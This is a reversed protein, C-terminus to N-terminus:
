DDNFSDDSDLDIKGIHTDPCKPKINALVPEGDAKFGNKGRTPTKGAYKWHSVKNKKVGEDKGRSSSKDWLALGETPISRPRNPTIPKKSSSPINDTSVERKYQQFLTEAQRQKADYPGEEGHGPAYKAEPPLDEVYFQRDPIDKYADSDETEDESYDTDLIDSESSDLNVKSIDTKFSRPPPTKAKNIAILRKLPDNKILKRNSQVLKEHKIGKQTRLDELEERLKRCRETMSHLPDVKNADPNLQWDRMVTEMRFTELTHRYGFWHFFEMVLQNILKILSRDASSNASGGTLPRKKSMDQQGRMMQLVKIHMESRLIAMTGNKELQSKINEEMLHEYAAELKTEDSSM